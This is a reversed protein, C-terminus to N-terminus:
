HNREDILVGAALAWPWHHGVNPVRIPDWIFKATQICPRFDLYNSSGVGKAQANRRGYKEKLKRLRAYPYTFVNIVM